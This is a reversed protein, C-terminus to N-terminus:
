GGRSRDLAQNQWAQAQARNGGMLGVDVGNAKLISTAKGNIILLIILGFLPVITMLGLFVAIAPERFSALGLQISVVTRFAIYFLALPLGLKPVTAAFILIPIEVILGVIMAWIVLKQKDVVQVLDPTREGVMHQLPHQSKQAPAANRGELFEGCHKCKIADINIAEACFPCKRTTPISAEPAPTKSPTDLIPPPTNQSIPLGKVSSAPYWQQDTSRRIFSDATVEGEEAWRKLQSQTM